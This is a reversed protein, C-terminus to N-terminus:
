LRCDSRRVEEVRYGNAAAWRKLEEIFEEDTSSLVGVNHTKSWFSIVQSKSGEREPVLNQKKVAV